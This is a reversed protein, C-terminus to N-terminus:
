FSVEFARQIAGETNCPFSSCPYTGRAKILRTGPDPFGDGDIDKGAPDFDYAAEYGVSRSSSIPLTGRFTCLPSNSFDLCTTDVQSIWFEYLAREVAADAAIIAIASEKIDGAIGVERRALAGLSIAAAFVLTTLLLALALAQGSQSFSTNQM